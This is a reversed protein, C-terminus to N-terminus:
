GVAAVLSWTSQRSYTWWERNQRIQLEHIVKDNSSMYGLSIFQCRRLVFWLFSVGYALPVLPLSVTPVSVSAELAAMSVMSSFQTGRDPNLTTWTAASDGNMHKLATHFPTTWRSKALQGFTAHWTRVQTSCIYGHLFYYLAAAVERVRTLNERTRCTLIWTISKPTSQLTGYMDSRLWFWGQRFTSVGQRRSGNKGTFHWPSWICLFRDTLSM